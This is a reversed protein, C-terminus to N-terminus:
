YPEIGASGMQTVSRPLGDATIYVFQPQLVRYKETGNPQLLRGDVRRKEIIPTGSMTFYQRERLKADPHLRSIMGECSATIPRRNDPVITYSRGRLVIEGSKIKENLIERLSEEQILHATPLALLRDIPTGEPVTRNSGLKQRVRLRRIADILFLEDTIPPYTRM